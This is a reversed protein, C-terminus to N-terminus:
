NNAPRYVNPNQPFYECEQQATPPCPQETPGVNTELWINHTSSTDARRNTGNDDTPILNINKLNLSEAVKDLQNEVQDM